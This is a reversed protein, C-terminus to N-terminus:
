AISVRDVPSPVEYRNTRIRHKKMRGFKGKLNEIYYIKQSRAKLTELM